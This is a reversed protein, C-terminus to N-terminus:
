KVKWGGVRQAELSCQSAPRHLRIPDQIVEITVARGAVTCTQGTKRACLTDKAGLVGLLQHVSHCTQFGESPKCQVQFLGAGEQTRLPDMWLGAVGANKQGPFVAHAPSWGPGGLNHSERRSLCDWRGM